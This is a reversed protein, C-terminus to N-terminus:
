YTQTVTIIVDRTLDIISRVLSLGHLRDLFGHLSLSLCLQLSDAEATQVSLQRCHQYGVRGLEDTQDPQCEIM